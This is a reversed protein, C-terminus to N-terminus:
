TLAKLEGETLTEKQPLLAAGRELKAKHRTLIAHAKDHAAEVISRVAVDIERATRCKPSRPTQTRM